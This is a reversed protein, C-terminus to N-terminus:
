AVEGSGQRDLVRRADAAANDFCRDLVSDRRIFVVPDHDSNGISLPKTQSCFTLRADAENEPVRLALGRRRITSYDRFDGRSAPHM